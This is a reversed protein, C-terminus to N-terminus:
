AAATRELEEVGRAAFARLLATRTTQLRKAQADLRTVLDLPLRATIPPRKSGACDPRSAIVM